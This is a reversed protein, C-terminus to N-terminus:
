PFVQDKVWQAPVLILGAVDHISTPNMVGLRLPFELIHTRETCIAELVRVFEGDM